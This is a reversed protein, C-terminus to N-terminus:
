RTVWFLFVFFFFSCFLLCCLLLFFVFSIFLFSCYIISIYLQLHPGLNLLKVNLYNGEVSTLKGRREKWTMKRRRTKGGHDKKRMEREYPLSLILVHIPIRFSIPQFSPLLLCFFEPKANPKRPQTRKNM